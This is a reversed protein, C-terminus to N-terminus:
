WVKKFTKLSYNEQTNDESDNMRFFVKWRMEKIVENIKDM